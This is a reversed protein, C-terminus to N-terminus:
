LRRRGGVGSYPIFFPLVGEGALQVLYVCQRFHSCAGERQEMAGVFCAVFCASADVSARRVLNRGAGGKKGAAVGGGQEGVSAVNSTADGSQPSVASSNGGTVASSAGCGM